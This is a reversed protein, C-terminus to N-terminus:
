RPASSTSTTSSRGGFAILKGGEPTLQFPQREFLKVGLDEELQRIQNSVAPQQIACPMHRVAGSIGGHRAVHYFLELHHINMRRFDCRPGPVRYALGNVSEIPRM